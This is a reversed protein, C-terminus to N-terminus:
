DLATIGWSLVAVNFLSTSDSEPLSFNCALSSRLQRRNCTLDKLSPDASTLTDVCCCATTTNYILPLLYSRFATPRPQLLRDHTKHLFNYNIPCAEKAGEHLLPQGSSVRQPLSHDGTFTPHNFVEQFHRLSLFVVLIFRSNRGGFSEQIQGLHQSQRRPFFPFFFYHFKM